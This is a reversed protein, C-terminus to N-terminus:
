SSPPCNSTNVQNISVQLGGSSGGGTITFRLTFLQAGNWTVTVTWTGPQSAPPKGAITLREKFCTSATQALPAWPGGIAGGATYVSGSPDRWESSAVDGARADPVLFFLIAETDATSFTSTATPAPECQGTPPVSKTMVALGVTAAQSAGAALLSVAVFVVMRTVRMM